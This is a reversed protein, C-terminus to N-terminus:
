GNVGARALWSLFGIVGGSVIWFLKDAFKVTGSNNAVTKSLLDLEDEISDSRQEIRDVRKNNSLLQEEVRVVATVVETLKDIKNEIRDFRSENM